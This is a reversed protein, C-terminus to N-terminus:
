YTRGAKYMGSTKRATGAAQEIRAM